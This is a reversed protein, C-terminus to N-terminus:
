MAGDVGVWLNMTNLDERGASKLYLFLQMRYAAYHSLVLSVILSGRSAPPGFMEHPERLQADTLPALLEDFLDNQRAISEKIEDLSLTRAIAEEANWSKGWVERDFTPALAGRLHTPAMITLYRLLEILSRQHQTPRYHLMEPEVKTVLHLLLRVEGRLANILEDKTLVM